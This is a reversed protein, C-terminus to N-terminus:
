LDVTSYGESCVLLCANLIFWSSFHIMRALSKVSYDSLIEHVIGKGLWRLDKLLAERDSAANGAKDASAGALRNALRTAAGVVAEESEAQGVNGSM